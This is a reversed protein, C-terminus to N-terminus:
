SCREPERHKRRHNRNSRFFGQAFSENSHTHANIFGPPALRKSGDIVRPAAAAVEPTDRLNEGIAAISGNQIFIDVGSRHQAGAGAIYTVNRLLLATAPM